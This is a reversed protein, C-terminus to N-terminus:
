QPRSTSPAAVVKWRTLVDLAETSIGFPLGVVWARSPGQAVGNGYFCARGEFTITRFGPYGAFERQDVLELGTGAPVPQPWPTMSTVIEDGPELPSTSSLARAGKDELYKQMGWHGTFWRQRAAAPLAAAYRRYIGAYQQDAASLTMALAFSIAAALRWRSRSAFSELPSPFARQLLLITPVLALLLYRVSAFALCVNFILIGVLWCALFLDDAERGRGERARWWGAARAKLVLGIVTAGSLGIALLVTERIV